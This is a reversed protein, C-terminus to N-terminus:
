VNLNKQHNIVDLFVDFDIKFNKQHNIVDLFVDFDIKM